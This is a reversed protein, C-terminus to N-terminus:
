VAAAGGVRALQRRLDAERQRRWRLANVRKRAVEAQTRVKRLEAELRRVEAEYLALDALADDLVDPEREAPEPEAWGSAGGTEIESM